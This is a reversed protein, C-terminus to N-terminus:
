ATKSVPAAKGGSDTKKQGAAESSKQSDSTESKTSGSDSTEGKTSSSGSSGSDSKHESKSKKGVAASSGNNKDTIYFGSGKFIVGAGGFILRRIEKGCKPCIKLPDDTIAQFAEFNHACSKCEYEYTPM